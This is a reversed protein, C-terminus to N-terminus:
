VTVYPPTLHQLSTTDCVLMQCRDNLSHVYDVNKWLMYGLPDRLIAVDTDSFLVDYGLSLISHVAEKKRSTILNFQKSRFETAQSTVEGQSSITMLFTAVATHNTLYHYVQQDLAFVLVKMNLRDLFCKFNFLHNIFGHNCATVLVTKQLSYQKVKNEDNYVGAARQLMKLLEEKNSQGYQILLIVVLIIIYM